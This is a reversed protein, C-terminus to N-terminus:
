RSMVIKALLRKIDNMLTSNVSDVHSSIDGTYSHVECVIALVGDCVLEKAGDFLDDYRVFEPNYFIFDDGANCYKFFRNVLRCICKQRGYIWTNCINKHDNVDCQLLCENLAPM